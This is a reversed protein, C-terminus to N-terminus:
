NDMNKYSNEINRSSSISMNVVSNSLEVEEFLNEKDKFYTKLIKYNEEFQGIFRLRKTDNLKILEDQIEIRELAGLIEM